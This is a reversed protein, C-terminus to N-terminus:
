RLKCKIFASTSETTSDTAASLSLFWVPLKIAVATLCNSRFGKRGNRAAFKCLRWLVSFRVFVLAHDRLIQHLPNMQLRAWWGVVALVVSSHKLHYHIHPCFLLTQCTFENWDGCRSRIRVIIVVLVFFRIPVLWLLTDRGSWHDCFCGASVSLSDFLTDSHKDFAANLVFSETQFHVKTDRCSCSQFHM